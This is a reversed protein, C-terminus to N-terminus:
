PRIREVPSANSALYRRATASYHFERISNQSYPSTCDHRPWGGQSHGSVWTCCRSDWTSTDASWTALYQLSNALSACEMVWNVLEQIASDKTKFVFFLFLFSFFLFLWMLGKQTEQFRCSLFSLFIYVGFLNGWLQARYSFSHTCLFVSDSFKGEQIRM